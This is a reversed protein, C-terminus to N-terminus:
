AKIPCNKMNCEVKENKSNMNQPHSCGIFGIKPFYIYDCDVHSKVSFIKWKEKKISTLTYMNM